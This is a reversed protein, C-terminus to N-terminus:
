HASQRFLRKMQRTKSADIQCAAHFRYRCITQRFMEGDFKKINDIRQAETEDASLAHIHFLEENQPCSGTQRDEFSSKRCGAICQVVSVINVYM